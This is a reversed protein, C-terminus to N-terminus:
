NLTLILPASQYHRVEARAGAAHLDEAECYAGPETRHARDGIVCMGAWNIATVILGCDFKRVAELLAAEREKMEQHSRELDACKELAEMMASQQKVLKKNTKKCAALQTESAIYKQELYSLEDQLKQIQISAHESRNNPSGSAVSPGCKNDVEKTTLRSLSSSETIRSAKPVQKKRRPVTRRIFDEIRAVRISEAEVNGHEKCRRHDATIESLGAHMDERPSLLAAVHVKNNFHLVPSALSGNYAAPSTQVAVKSAAKKSERGEDPEEFEDESYGSDADSVVKSEEQDDDGLQRLFAELDDEGSKPKRQAM